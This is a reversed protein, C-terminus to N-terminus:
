FRLAVGTELRLNNQRGNLGNPFRTLLYEVQFTRLTVQPNLRYDLGAGGAASVQSDNQFNTAAVQAFTGSERTVGILAQGFPVLRTHRLPVPVRAGFLYSSFSLFQGTNDVNGRHVFSLDAVLAFHPGYYYAVSGSGGYMAFCGCGGPPANTRVFTFTGAAEIPNKVDATPTSQTHGIAPGLFAVAFLASLKLNLTPLTM